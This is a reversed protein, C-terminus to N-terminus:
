KGKADLPVDHTRRAKVSKGGQQEGKRKGSSSAGAVDAKVENVSAGGEGSVGGLQRLVGVIRGHAAAPSLRGNFFSMVHSADLRKNLRVRARPSEM